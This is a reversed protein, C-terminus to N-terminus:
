VPLASIAGTARKMTKEGTSSLIAGPNKGPLLAKGSSTDMLTVLFNHRPMITIAM